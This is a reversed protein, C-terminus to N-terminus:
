SRTRLARLVVGTHLFGWVLSFSGCILAILTMDPTFLLGSSISGAAMLTGIMIFVVLLNIILPLLIYRVWKRVRSPRSKLGKRWRHILRLTVVVSIIQLLPIILLGRLLWPIFGLRTPAFQGTVLWTAVSTGFETMVPSILSHCANILLVVGKKQEPLLAIYTIFGPVLGPHWVIKTRDIEQIFWGMGYQGMPVGGMNASVAPHHLKDIGSPSLIQINGFRGKNLYAILYHALDESSTMLYASPFSARAIPMDPIAFPSAFWYRSGVALGNEKALSQSTYSHKMGLPDFIHNQVYVEYSQGSVVEIILGLLNFNMNCYEFESGVPRTLKLTAIDRAHRECAGPKNEFDVLPIRGCNLPLGSTQYLLHRVTIQASAKTDAVRFWPLYHQVPADLKIKGCEVLQMIALATFSKTVSGIIFPTKPSPTEGGPRAQGFGRLHVIKNDEVIALAMGPINLRNIHKEMYADLEEFSITSSAPKALIGNKIFLMFTLILIFCISLSLFIFKKKSM